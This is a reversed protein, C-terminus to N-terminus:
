AQEKLPSADIGAVYASAAYRWWVSVGAGALGGGERYGALADVYATRLALHGAEPVLVSSPDVGRAVWTLREAARAVIGNHSTFPRGAAIEAHVIAAVVLAPTSSNGRLIAALRQLLAAAAEDAPRGREDEPRSAAAVAHLQALAQLPTRRFPTLQSLVMASVRVADDQSTAGIGEDVALEGSARAGTLLAESTDTSTTRRFGRDRLVVDIGDRASAFASPVGEFTTHLAQLDVTVPM